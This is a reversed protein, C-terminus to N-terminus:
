AGSGAVPACRGSTPSSSRARPVPESETHGLPTFRDGEHSYRVLFDGRLRDLDHAGVPVLFRLSAANALDVAPNIRPVGEGEVARRALAEVSPPFEVPNIQARRFADLWAKLRPNRDIPQAALAQRVVGIARSLADEAGPAPGANDVATAVVIGVCYDPFAALVEPDIGFRMPRQNESQSESMTPCRGLLFGRAWVPSLGLM